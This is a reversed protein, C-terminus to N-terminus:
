NVSNALEVFEALSPKCRKGPTFLKVKMEIINKGSEFHDAPFFRSSFRCFVNHVHRPDEFWM